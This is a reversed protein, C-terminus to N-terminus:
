RTGLELLTATVEAPVAVDHREVSGHGEAGAVTWQPIRTIVRDADHSRPTPM